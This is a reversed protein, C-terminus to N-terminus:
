NFSILCIRLNKSKSYWGIFTKLINKMWLVNMYAAAFDMSKTYYKSFKAQKQPGPVFIQILSSNFINFIM